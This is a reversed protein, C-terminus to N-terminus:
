RFTGAGYWRTFKRMEGTAKSFTFAYQLWVNKYGPRQFVFGAIYWPENSTPGSGIWVVDNTWAYGSDTMNAMDLMVGRQSMVQRKIYWRLEETLSEDAALNNAIAGDDTAQPSLTSAHSFTTCQSLLLITLFLLRMPFSM